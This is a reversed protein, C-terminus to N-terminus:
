LLAIRAAMLRLRLNERLFYAQPPALLPAENTDIREIRVLSKLATWFEGAARRWGPTEEALAEAQKGAAERPRADMALPWADLGALLGDLRASLGGTDVFPAQKLRDIDRALVKRLPGLQPRDLRALRNDAASLAILAAKVNGALQLQQNAVLLTQEVDALASEDRSRSLEQYLAELAAQQNQSEALKSELVGLRTQAERAAERATEAVARSERAQTESDALRKALAQEITRSTSRADYWQAAALLAAAAAIWTAPHRLWARAPASATPPAPAPTDSM